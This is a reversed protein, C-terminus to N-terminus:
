PAKKGLRRIIILLLPLAVVLAIFGEAVPGIRDLSAGGRDQGTRLAVVYTVVDDVDTPSLAGEPFQPMSGPGLRIAEAVQTPTAAYLNPANRGGPLVAGTGTSSHCSACNEIYLTRGSALDGPSVQPVAPGPGLSAVYAALAAVDDPAFAPPGREVDAQEHALPMRGTGVWFDVDAAGAGVLSPGIAAGAGDQGHCWACSRLYLERGRAVQDAAPAPQAAAVPRVAAAPVGAQALAGGGLVVALLLVARLVRPPVSRRRRM